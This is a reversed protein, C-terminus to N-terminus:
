PRPPRAPAAAAPRTQPMRGRPARWTSLPPAPRPLASRNLFARMMHARAACSRQACVGAAIGEDAARDLTDLIQAEQAALALVDVVDAPGSQQMGDDQAAGDGMPANAADIAGGRQRPGAHAGDDRRGVDAGDRGNRQPLLLEGGELRELLRHDRGALHAIDALGHGHHHGVAGGDRLIRRFRDHTSMSAAAPPPPDRPRRFRRM